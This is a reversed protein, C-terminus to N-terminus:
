KGVIAALPVPPEQQELDEQVEQGERRRENIPPFVIGNITKRELGPFPPRVAALLLVCSYWYVGLLSVM